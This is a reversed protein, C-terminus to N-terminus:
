REAAKQPAPQKMGLLTVSFVKPYSFTGLNYSTRRLVYCGSSLVRSKLDEDKARVAAAPARLAARRAPSPRGAMAAGIGGLLGAAAGPVNLSAFMPASRVAAM